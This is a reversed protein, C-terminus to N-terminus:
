RGAPRHVKSKEIILPALKSSRPVRSESRSSGLDAATASHEYTGTIGGQEGEQCARLPCPMIGFGFRM